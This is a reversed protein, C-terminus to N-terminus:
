GSLVELWHSLTDVSRSELIKMVPHYLWPWYPYDYAGVYTEIEGGFGRKFNYVGWLGGQNEKPIEQDTKVLAAIEDPIGWHYGAAMAWKLAHWQILYSAEVARGQPSTGGFLHLSRNNYVFILKAAVTQSQYKALFLKVAQHPNFTQWAREYFIKDHISFGKQDATTQLVQYFEPLGSADSEIVEVGAQAARRILQRTKKRMRALLAAEDGTLNIIITSRPQNTQRTPIFGLKQLLAQHIDDNLLNPELRLLVARHRRALQHIAEFLAAAAAEDVLNVPPGKPVYAFTYPLGPLARFLVQAGAVLQGECELGLREVQWGLAAKFDGWQSTQMLHGLCSNTVFADWRKSEVETLINVTSESMIM